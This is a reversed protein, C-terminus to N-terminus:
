RMIFLPPRSVLASGTRSYLLIRQVVQDAAQEGLRGKRAWKANETLSRESQNRNVVSEVCM